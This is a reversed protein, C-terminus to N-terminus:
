ESLKNLEELKESLIEWEYMRQELEREIKQLLIIFEADSANEPEQLKEQMKQIEVELEVVAKEADNM